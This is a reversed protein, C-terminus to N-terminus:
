QTIQVDFNQRGTFGTSCPPAPPLLKRPGSLAAEHRGHGAYEGHDESMGGGEHTRGESASGHRNLSRDGPVQRDLHGTDQQEGGDDRESRRTTTGGRCLPGRRRRSCGVTLGNNMGAQERAQRVHLGPAVQRPGFFPAAPPKGRGHLVM